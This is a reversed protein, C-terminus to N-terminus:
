NRIENLAKNLQPDVGATRDADTYQVYIDPKIGTGHINIGSPTLWKAITLKLSSSDLYTSIEQVTGKGFSTEGILTAQHHDHLAAALIESASASGKNMLVYTPVNALKASGTSYETESVTPGVLRTVVKGKALFNGAIDVAADLFGGPNNRLDIIVGNLNGANTQNVFSAFSSATGFGFNNVTIILIDDATVEGVVSAVSIRERVITFNLVSSGRKIVLRVQTGPEGQILRVVEVLTFNTIVKGDISNVVDGPRLGAREAPSDNLPSVIVVNGADDLALSAGIGQIENSLSNQFAAAVEPEQFVSYPDGVRNVLGEIAGFILDDESLKNKDVYEKTIKDWVDLLIPYKDSNTLSGNPQIPSITNDNISPNPTDLAQDIKDEYLALNALMIAVDGETTPNIPWIAQKFPDVLGVQYARFMTPAYFAGPVLTPFVEKFKAEDFTIPVPIGELKMLLSLSRWLAFPREENFTPSYANYYILGLKRMEELYPALEPSVGEFDTETAAPVVNNADLIIKIFEGRPVPTTSLAFVSSPLLLLVGLVLILKKMRM